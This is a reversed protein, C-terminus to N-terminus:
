RMGPNSAKHIQRVPRVQHDSVAREGPPGPVTYRGFGTGPRRRLRPRCVDHETPCRRTLGPGSPTSRTDRRTLNRRRGSARRAVDPRPGGYANVIGESLLDDVPQGAARKYTAYINDFTHNEGVIVIVHQIPTTPDGLGAKPTATVHASASGAGLVAAMMLASPLRRRSGRRHDNLSRM